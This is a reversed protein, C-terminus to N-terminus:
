TAGRTSSAMYVDCDSSLRAGKRRCADDYEKFSIDFSCKGGRWSVDAAFYGFFGLCSAVEQRPFRGQCLVTNSSRPGWGNQM